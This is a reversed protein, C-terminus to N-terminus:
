LAKRLKEAYAEAENDRYRGGPWHQLNDELTRPIVHVHMHPILQGAVKGNNVIVNFGAVGLGKVMGAGVKQVGEFLERLLDGSVDLLSETHAKPLVLAHGKNTPHIDLIAVVNESEYVKSSPMEGNITKCFICARIEM